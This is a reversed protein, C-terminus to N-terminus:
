ATKREHKMMFYTTIEAMLHIIFFPMFLRSISMFGFGTGFDLLLVAPLIGTSVLCVAEGKTPMLRDALFKALFYRVAIFCAYAAGATLFTRLTLNHAFGLMVGLAVYFFIYLIREFTMSLEQFINGYETDSKVLGTIFGLVLPSISFLMAIGSVMVVFLISLSHVSKKERAKGYHLFVFGVLLACVIAKVFDFPRYDAFGAALSYAVLTLLPFMSAVMSSVFVKERPVKFLKITLNLSYPMLTNLAITMILPHVCGARSLIFYLPPMLALYVAVSLLYFSAPVDRLLKISFHTGLALGMFTLLLYMIGHMTNVPLPRSGAMFYLAVGVLIYELELNMLFSFISEGKWKKSYFLSGAFLFAFFIIVIQIESM